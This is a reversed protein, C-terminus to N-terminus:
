DDHYKLYWGGDLPVYFPNVGDGQTLKRSRECGAAISPVTPVQLRPAFEFYMDWSDCAWGRSWVLLTLGGTATTSELRVQLRHLIRQMRPNAGLSTADPTDLALQAMEIFDSRHRRFLERLEKETRFFHGFVAQKMVLVPSTLPLAFLLLTLLAALPTRFQAIVLYLTTALMVVYLIGIPIVWGIGDLTNEAAEYAPDMASLVIGVCLVSRLGFRLEVGMLKWFSENAQVAVFAMAVFIVLKGPALATVVAMLAEVAVFVGLVRFFAGLGFKNFAPSRAPTPPSDSVM